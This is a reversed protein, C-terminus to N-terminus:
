TSNSAAMAVSIFFLFVALVIIVDLIEWMSQAGSGWSSTDVSVIEDIAIPLLFAGVIGAVLLAVILSVAQNARSTVQGRNSDAFDDALAKGAKANGRCRAKIKELM